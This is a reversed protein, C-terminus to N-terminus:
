QQPKNENKNTEGLPKPTPVYKYTFRTHCHIVTSLLSVISGCGGVLFAFYGLSSNSMLAFYCVVDAGVFYMFSKAIDRGNEEMFENRKALEHDFYEYHKASKGCADERARMDRANEYRTNGYIVDPTEKAFKKCDSAYFYKCSNCFKTPALTVEPPYNASFARRNAVRLIALRRVFM